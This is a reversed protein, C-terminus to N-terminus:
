LTEEIEDLGWTLEDYFREVSTCFLDYEEICAAGAKRGPEGGKRIHQRQLEWTDRLREYAPSMADKKAALESRKPAEEAKAWEEELKSENNPRSPGLQQVLRSFATITREEVNKRALDPREDSLKLRLDLVLSKLSTLERALQRRNRITQQQQGDWVLEFIPIQEGMGDIKLPEGDIPHLVASPIRAKLATLRLDIEQQADEDLVIDGPEAVDAVLRAAIEIPKGSRDNPAGEAYRHKAITGVSMGIRSELRDNGPAEACELLRQMVVASAVIAKDADKLEFAILVGHQAYNVIEAAMTGDDGTAEAVVVETVLKNHAKLRSLTVDLHDGPRRVPSAFM